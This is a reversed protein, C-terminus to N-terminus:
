VFGFILGQKRHKTVFKNGSNIKNGGFINTQKIKEEMSNQRNNELLHIQANNRYPIAANNSYV